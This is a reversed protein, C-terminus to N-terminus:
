DNVNATNITLNVCYTDEKEIIEYTYEPYLLNLQQKINSIGIGNNTKNKTLNSKTNEVKFYLMTDEQAVQISIKPIRLTDVSSHKFANEVISLLIFPAIKMPKTSSNQFAIEIENGYRLQELAIYNELLNIEKDISVFKENCQYLMYDLMESLRAISKPTQDSKQLALAYLNNLTNFLFHPNIQAKLIRLEAIKSNRDLEINRKEVAQKERIVRDITMILTTLVIPPSYSHFLFRIDSFIEQISEQPFPRERTLPEYVYVNIIRDFASAFYFLVLSLIGFVLYKKYTYFHPILVDNFIYAALLM